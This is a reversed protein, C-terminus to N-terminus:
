PASRCVVYLPSSYSACFQVYIADFLAGNLAQGINADPFPCQPAATIYIRKECGEARERIRNVFAAYGTPTGQEIDLDVRFLLAFRTFTIHARGVPHLYAEFPFSIFLDIQMGTSSPTALLGHSALTPAM